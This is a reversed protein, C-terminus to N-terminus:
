NIEKVGKIFIWKIFLKEGGDTKIAQFKPSLVTSLIFSIISVFIGSQELYKEILFQTLIFLTAFCLLQLVFAKVQLKTM